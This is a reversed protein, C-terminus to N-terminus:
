LIPAPIRKLPPKSNVTKWCQSTSIGLEGTATRLNELTTCEEEKGALEYGGLEVERGLLQLENRSNRRHLERLQIAFANDNGEELPPNRPSHSCSQL